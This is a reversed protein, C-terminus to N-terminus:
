SAAKQVRRVAAQMRTLRGFLRVYLRVMEGEDVDVTALLPAGDAMDVTVVEGRAFRACLETSPMAEPRVLGSPQLKAQLADIEAAPVPLPMEAFSVATSVGPTTNIPGFAQGDALGVFLYRPFLPRLVDVTRGRGLPAKAAYHPYIVEYGRRELERRALMEARANAYVAYWRLGRPHSLRIM